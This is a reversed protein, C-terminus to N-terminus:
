ETEAGDETAKYSIREYPLVLAGDVTVYEIKTINGDDDKTVKDDKLKLYYDLIKDIQEAAKINMAGCYDEYTGLNTNKNEENYDKDTYLLTDEYAQAVAYIKIIPTIAEKAEKRVAEKASKTDTAGASKKQSILFKMFDGNYESYYTKNTTTNKETYFTAKYSDYLVDYAEDLAKEPFKGEKFTVTKEILNYIKKAIAYKIEENYANELKEFVSEKYEKVIQEETSLDDSGNSTKDKDLIEKIKDDIDKNQKSVADEATKLEGKATEYATKQTETAGDKEAITKTSDVKKQATELDGELEVLKDFLTDLAEILSKYTDTEFMPLSTTTLKSNFIEKLVSTASLESVDKFYVPYVYYTLEKDKLDIKDDTSSAFNNADTAYVKNTATFTTDKVTVIPAGEDEVVWHITIDKYSVNTAVGEITEEITAELGFKEGITKDVLKDLFAVGNAAGLTVEAYRYTENVAVDPQGEGASKDYTRTYTVYVKDGAATKGSTKTKYVFDKVDVDLLAIADAILKNIGSNDSLGLQVNKANKETMADALVKYTKANDGEGVTVECFYVYYLVDHGTIKGETSKDDADVAKALAEYISDLVKISRTGENVNGNTTFEGDKIIISQLGAEFAAKDFNTYQTMDDKAYSYGCSALSLALMVVILLMSIIRRKM